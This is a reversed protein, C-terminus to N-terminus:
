EWEKFSITGDENIFKRNGKTTYREDSQVEFDYEGDEVMYDDIIEQGLEQSDHFAISFKTLNEETGRFTVEPWAGQCSVPWLGVIQLQFVECIEQLYIMFRSTDNCPGDFAIAVTFRKTKM